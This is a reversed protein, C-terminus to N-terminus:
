NMASAVAVLLASIITFITAGTVALAAGSGSGNLKDDDSGNNDDNPGNGNDSGNNDDNPDNGDDSGNDYDPGDPGGGPAGGGAAGGQGSCCFQWCKTVSVLDLVKCQELCTQCSDKQRKEQSPGCEAITFTLVLALLCVGAMMTTKMEPCFRYDKKWYTFNNCIIRSGLLAM